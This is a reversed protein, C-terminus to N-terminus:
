GALIVRTCPLRSPTPAGDAGADPGCEGPVAAGPVARLYAFVRALLKFVEGSTELAYLADLEAGPMTNAFDSGDGRADVDLWAPAEGLPAAPLPIVRLGTRDSRVSAVLMAHLRDGCVTWFVGDVSEPVTSGEQLWFLHQPLQLYGATSSPSPDDGASGEVLYRAAHTTLLYLPGGARTFHVAHFVLAGYRHIADAPAEAGEIGRVFDTVVGMTLFADPDGDDTGRGAAEEAIRSSLSAAEEADPFLLEVPTTRAYADHLSM